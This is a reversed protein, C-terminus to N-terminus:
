QTLSNNGTGGDLIDQGPGGILVDDGAGGTLTDDGKSGILVDNGNGGNEVLGIAGAKLKSADVVDNGDLGNITLQDNSAESGTIHVEAALGNVDTGKSSNGSVAVKDDGATGEIVVSDPQNDGTRSGPTASLDINVDKVDTGSLDHVTVTDAGGLTALDVQEVGNVDMTVNGVDRFLRLRSGNASLDFNENANSGNFQLTDNGGQGEITDSGDGPNWIFVDNGSGGLLMDAGKGGIITDNGDGGILRDAGASGTITDNGTGGDLTLNVVGASLNAASVNDNGGLTSVTLNDSADTGVINVQAPLGAVAVSSGSGSIQVTDKRATGELSISDAQNDGIGSGPVGALDLNLTKVDTGSLDHVTVTDAGGLTALNVQEVGNVDMTVNGVDRFLRLRSGNASLDFNENANSGNFQLTDHGGQGEITDSGDGPNWIFVDDGSGGLLMDAGRGGILTDNGDGGSLLDAGAGGKLTDNGAGGFLNAVPLAGNSEDISIQDNGDQGFVQILTTNATTAKGGQVAVAGGNVTITGTADRAITITNDQADGTVTLVGTTASFSATVAPVIRDDLQELAPLFSRSRPKKSGTRRSKKGFFRHFWSETM